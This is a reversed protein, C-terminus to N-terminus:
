LQRAVLVLVVISVVQVDFPDNQATQSNQIEVRRCSSGTAHTATCFLVSLVAILVTGRLRHSNAHKLDLKPLTEHNSKGPMM